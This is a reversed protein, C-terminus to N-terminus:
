QTRFLNGKLDLDFKFWPPPIVGARYHTSVSTPKYTVKITGIGADGLSGKGKSGRTDRELTIEFADINLKAEVIVRHFSALKSGKVMSIINRQM